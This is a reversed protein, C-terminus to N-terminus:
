KKGCNKTQLNSFWSKSMDLLFFYCRFVDNQIHNWSSLILYTMKKIDMAMKDWALEFWVSWAWSVGNCGQIVEFDHFVLRFWQLECLDLGVWMMVVKFWKLDHFVLRFWAFVLRFWHLGLRFGVFCAQNLYFNYFIIFDMGFTNLEM